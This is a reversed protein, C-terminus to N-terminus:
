LTAGEGRIESVVPKLFDDLDVELANLFRAAMCYYGVLLTLDVLDRASLETALITMLRGPVPYGAALLRTYELVNATFNDQPAELRSLDVGMRRAIMEHFKEEYACGSERGVTLTVLEVLQPDLRTGFRLYEGLHAVRQMAVPSNAMAKFINPLDGLGRAGAVSDYTRRQKRDLEPRQVLPVRAMSRALGARTNSRERPGCCYIM